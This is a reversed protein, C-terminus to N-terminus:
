KAEKTALYEAPDIRRVDSAPGFTGLRSQQYQDKPRNGRLGLVSQLHLLAPFCPQGRKPMRVKRRGLVTGLYLAQRETKLHDVDVGQRALWTRLGALEDPLTYQAAPKM